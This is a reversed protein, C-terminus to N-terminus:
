TVDIVNMKSAIISVILVEKKAEDVTYFINYKGCPMFRYERSLPRESIYISCSYSFDKLQLAATEIEELFRLVSEVHGTHEFISKAYTELDQEALQQYVLTYIKNAEKLKINHIFIGSSMMM